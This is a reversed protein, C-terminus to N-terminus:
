IPFGGYKPRASPSGGIPARLTITGIGDLLYTGTPVYHSTTCLGETSSISVKPDQLEPRIPCHLPLLGIPPEILIHGTEDLLGTVPPVYHSTTCLGETSSISVK